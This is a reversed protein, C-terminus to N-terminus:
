GELRAAVQEAMETTPVLFAARNANDRSLFHKLGRAAAETKGLGAGAEVCHVPLVQFSTGGNFIWRGSQTLDAYDAAAGAHTLVQTRLTKSANELATEHIYEQGATNNETFM